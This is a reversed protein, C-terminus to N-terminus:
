GLESSVGRLLVVLGLVMDLMVILAAEVLVLLLMGFVVAAEIDVM